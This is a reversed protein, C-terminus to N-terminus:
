NFNRLNMSIMISVQNSYQLTDKNIEDVRQKLYSQQLKDIDVNNKELQLYRKLFENGNLMINGHVVIAPYKYNVDTVLRMHKQDLNQFIKQYVIVAINLKMIEDIDNLESLNNGLVNIGYILNKIHTMMFNELQKLNRTKVKNKVAVINDLAIQFINGDILLDIEHITNQLNIHREDNSQQQLLLDSYLSLYNKFLGNQFIMDFIVLNKLLLLVDDMNSPFISTPTIQLLKEMSFLACYQQFVNVSLFIANQILFKMDFLDELSYSFKVLANEESAETLAESVSIIEDEIVILKNAIIKSHKILKRAEKNLHYFVIMCRTLLKNESELLQFVSVNEPNPDSKLQFFKENYSKESILKGTSEKYSRIFKSFQKLLDDAAKNDSNSQFNM